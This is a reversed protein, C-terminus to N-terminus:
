HNLAAEALFERRRIYRDRPWHLWNEERDIAGKFAWFDNDAVSKQIIRRSARHYDGRYTLDVLVQKIATDLTEWETKGYADIISQKECIRKVTAEYEVYIQEFLKLQSDVSIEFDLLDHQVVFAMASEGFRGAAESLLEVKSPAVSVQSLDRRIREGSRNKMDYGRGITLGSTSAPVHLVRSHYRGGENGEANWTLLGKLPATIRESSRSGEMFNVLAKFTKFDAGTVQGDPVVDSVEKRQFETIAEELLGNAKGDINFAAKGKKRAYVNLLAQVVRVDEAANSANKGVSNAITLRM